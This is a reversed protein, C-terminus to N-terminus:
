RGGLRAAEDLSMPNAKWDKEIAPGLDHPFDGFGAKFFTAKAGEYRKLAIDSILHPHTTPQYVQVWYLAFLINIVPQHRRVEDRNYYEAAIHVGPQIIVEHYDTPQEFPSVLETLATINDGVAPRIPNISPFKGPIVVGEPYRLYLNIPQPKVGFAGHFFWPRGANTSTELYLIDTGPSRPDNFRTEAQASDEDIDIDDGDADILPWPKWQCIRRRIVRGFVFGEKFELAFSQNHQLFKHWIPIVGKLLENM